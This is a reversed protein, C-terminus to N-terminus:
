RASFTPVTLPTGPPRENAFTRWRELDLSCAGDRFFLAIGEITTISRFGAPVSAGVRAILVNVSTEGARRYQSPSLFPVRRHLYVYGGTRIPNVDMVALGCIRPSRAAEWLLRNYPDGLRWIAHTGQDRYGFDHRSVQTTRRVIAGALVLAAMAVLRTRPTRGELERALQDLGMGALVFFLPVVPYIFRLEKHEVLSLAAVELLVALAVLPARRAGILAAGLLVLIPPGVVQWVVTAYYAAPETGFYQSKGEILNFRLYRLISAFPSGWTIWDLGGGLLAAAGFGIMFLMAQRRSRQWYLALPLWVVLVNAYRVFVMLATSVGALVAARPAGPGLTQRVVLALLFASPVESLCRTGLVLLPPFATLFLGGLLGAREGGLASGTKITLHVTLVSLVVMGGRAALIPPIGFWDGFVMLPALLGPLVWHRAGDRYEWPVFGYGFALRHAQEATQFIEDPWLVGQEWFLIWGLSVATALLLAMRAILGPHRLLVMGRSLPAPVSGAADTM